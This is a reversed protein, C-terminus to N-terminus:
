RRAPSAGRAADEGLLRRTDRWGYGVEPLRVGFIEFERERVLAGGLAEYFRRGAENATFVWILLSRHGRQALRRAGEALLRRGLGRRQRTPLLYLQFVEGTFAPDGSGEPGGRLFGVVGHRPDDAVLVFIGREAGGALAAAWRATMEEHSFGDLVRDPLMGRYAGRWSDITVRAIAAADDPTAERIAVSEARARAGPADDPAPDTTPM